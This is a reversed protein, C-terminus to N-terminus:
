PARAEVPFLKDRADPHGLQGEEGAGCAFLRGESTLFLAHQAGAACLRM